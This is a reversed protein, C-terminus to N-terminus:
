TFAGLHQINETSVQQRLRGCEGQGPILLDQALQHLPYLVFNREAIGPHPINLREDALQLDDYLLIDLDLTRAAWRKHRLRGQKNEIQQCADLLRHPSLQSDLKVVANIYDAQPQNDGPLTMARSQYLDSCALLRTKPLDQLSTRAQILQWRPNDLNSGMALYVIAM